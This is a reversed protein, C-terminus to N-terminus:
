DCTCCSRISAYNDKGENTVELDDAALIHKGVAVLIRNGVKLATVALDQLGRRVLGVSRTALGSPTSPVIKETDNGESM